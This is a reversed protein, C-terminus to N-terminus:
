LSSGSSGGDTHFFSSSQPPESEACAESTPPAFNKESATVLRQRKLASEAPADPSEEGISDLERQM